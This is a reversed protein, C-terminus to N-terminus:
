PLGRRSDGGRREAQQVRGHAALLLRLLPADARAAARAGRAPESVVRGPIRRHQPLGPPDDSGPQRRRPHRDGDDARRGQARPEADVHLAPARASSATGGEHQRALVARGAREHRNRHRWADRRRRDLRRQAHLRLCQGGQGRDRYADHGEHRRGFGARTLGDHRRGIAGDRPDRGQRRGELYTWQKVQPDYKTPDGAIFAKSARKPDILAARERAYEKSLLGAAPVKVFAPDAYYSDRDAYALKLAEIVTHLYDASAYGMARLDFNELINLTQLLM